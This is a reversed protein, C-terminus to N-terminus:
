SATEVHWLIYDLQVNRLKTDPEYGDRDDDLQAGQVELGTFVGAFDSMAAMVKAAVQKVSSYSPDWITLQFRAPVLGSTGENTQIRPADIRQYTMAPKPCDDPMVQPYIRDEVLATLGVDGTLRAALAEEITM